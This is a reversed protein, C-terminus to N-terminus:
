QAYQKNMYTCNEQQGKLTRLQDIFQISNFQKAITWTKEFIAANRLFWPTCLSPSLFCVVRQILVMNLWLGHSIRYWYVTLYHYMLALIKEFATLNIWTKRRTGMCNMYCFFVRNEANLRLYMYEYSSKVICKEVKLLKRWYEDYQTEAAHYSPM